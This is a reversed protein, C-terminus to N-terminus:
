SIRPGKWGCAFPLQQKRPPKPKELPTSLPSFAPLQKPDASRRHQHPSRPLRQSTASSGGGERRGAKASAARDHSAGQLPSYLLFTHRLCATAAAAAPRDLILIPKLTHKLLILLYLHTNASSKSPKAFWLVASRGFTAPPIRTCKKKKGAGSLM